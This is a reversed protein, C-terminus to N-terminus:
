FQLGSPVQVNHEGDYKTYIFISTYINLNTM